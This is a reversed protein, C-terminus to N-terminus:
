GGGGREAGGAGPARGADVAPMRIHVIGLALPPQPADRNRRQDQPAGAVADHLRRVPPGVALENGARAELHDLPGPMMGLDLLGLGEGLRDAAEQIASPSGISAQHCHSTGYGNTGGSTSLAASETRALRGFRYQSGFIAASRNSSPM